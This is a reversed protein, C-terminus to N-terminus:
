DLRFGHLILDIASWVTKAFPFGVVSVLLILVVGGVILQLVPPNPLTLVLALVIYVVLSAGVAAYNVM